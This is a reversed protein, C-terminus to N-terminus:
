RLRGRRRPKFRKRRKKNGPKKIQRPNVVPLTYNHIAMGLLTLGAGVLVRVPDTKFAGILETLRGELRDEPRRPQTLSEESEVVEGTQGDIIM